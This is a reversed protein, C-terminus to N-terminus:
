SRKQALATRFALATRERTFYAARSLGADRLSQALAPRNILEEVRDAWEPVNHPDARLSAGGAVEDFVPISSCVCPLGAAMAEILPMGFGEYVSPLLLASAGAYLIDREEDSVYGPWVVTGAAEAARIEGIEVDRAWGRSGVIVLQLDLGRGRLEQATRVALTVNKRPEVTGVILLYPPRAGLRALAAENQAIPARGAIPARQPFWPPVVTGRAGRFLERVDSGGAESGFILPHRRAVRGLLAHEFLRTRRQQHQPVRFSSVDLVATLAKVRPLSPVILSTSVYADVPHAQLHRWVSLHWRPGAARIAVKEIEPPLDLDTPGLYARVAVGPLDTVALAISLLHRGIGTPRGTAARLDFAAVTSGPAADQSVRHDAGPGTM